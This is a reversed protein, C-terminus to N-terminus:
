AADKLHRRIMRVGYAALLGSFLCFVVETSLTAVEEPKYGAKRSVTMLLLLDMVFFLFVPGAFLVLAAGPAIKLLTERDLKKMEVDETHDM